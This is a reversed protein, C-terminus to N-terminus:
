GPYTPYRGIGLPFWNANLSYNVALRGHALGAVLPVGPGGATISLMGPDPFLPTPPGGDVPVEWLQPGLTGSHALVILNDAGYWALQTPNSVDTGFPLPSGISPGAATRSIAALVLVSGGSPTQMIMAVRVGDPAVRFQSLSYSSGPLTFRVAEPSGGPPLMWIGKPGALWLDDHVDWSVSSFGGPHSWTALTTGKSIQGYYVVAGSRSLGAIYRGDPSVAIVSAPPVDPRGAQGAVSVPASGNWAQVADDPAVSYLSDTAPGEPVTLYSLAPQPRGGLWSAWEMQRGNVQLAVSQIASPVISPGALTWVLQAMMDGLEREDASAPRGGLDVTATGDAITVPRLPKVHAPFATSAAGGALWGQPSTLLASVLRTAVDVSTAQLPVYVPDPVLAQANASGALFYLNRPQYVRQFDAETLLLQRPPNEILWQGNVKTLDFDYSFPERQQAPVYQGNDTLTGLLQSSFARVETTPVVSSIQPPPQPQPQKLTPVASLVYVTGPHWSARSDPKDPDLYQRATFHDGAFDANSAIFGAVVQQPTWGQGPQVGILQLYGQGQGGVSQAIRGPQALGSDPVTACSCLVVAVAAAALVPRWLRSPKDSTTM